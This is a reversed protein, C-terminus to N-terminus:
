EAELSDKVLLVIKESMADLEVPYSNTRLKGSKVLESQELQERIFDSIIEKVEDATDALQGRLM